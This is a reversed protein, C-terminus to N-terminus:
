LETYSYEDINTAIETEVKM